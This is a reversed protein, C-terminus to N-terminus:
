LYESRAAIGLDAAFEAPPVMRRDDMGDAQDLIQTLTIGIHVAVHSAEQALQFASWDGYCACNISLSKVAKDVAHIPADLPAPMLLGILRGLVSGEAKHRPVNHRQGRHPSPLNNRLHNFGTSRQLM